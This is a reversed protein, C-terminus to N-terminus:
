DYTIKIENKYASSGDMEKKRKNKNKNNNRKKVAYLVIMIQVAPKGTTIKSIKIIKKKMM